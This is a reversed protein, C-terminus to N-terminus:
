VGDNLLEALVEAGNSRVLFHDLAELLEAGIRAAEAGFLGVIEDLVFFLQPPRDDPLDLRFGLLLAVEAARHLRAPRYKRLISTPTSCRTACRGCCAANS